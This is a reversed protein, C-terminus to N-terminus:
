YTMSSTDNKLLLRINKKFNTDLIDIIDSTQVEFSVEEIAMALDNPKNSNSFKVINKIKSRQICKIPTSVVSLGNSLYTLVKSPFTYDSLSDKLVRPNLAIDCDQLCMSLEEGKLFGLYKVKDSLGKKQIYDLMQTIAENSGYGLIILKYNDNLLSTSDIALYVDSNYDDSLLGAYVLNISDGIKEQKPIYQHSNNYNGYCVIYPVTNDIINALIDNVYLYSDAGKLWSIERRIWSMPKNWAAFYSEEVEIILKFKKFFRAMKFFPLLYLSHYFIVADDKTIKIFLYSLVQLNLYMRSFIKNKATGIFLNEELDDIKLSKRKMFKFSEGLCIVKVRIGNYKISDIIYSMKTNCGPFEIFNNPNANNTYYGFYFVNM